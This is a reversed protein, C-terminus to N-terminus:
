GKIGWPPWQLSLNMLHWICTYGATACHYEQSHKNDINLTCLTLTNKATCGISSALLLESRCLCSTVSWTWNPSYWSLTPISPRQHPISNTQLSSCEMVLVYVCLPLSLVNWLKAYHWTLQYLICLCRQWILTLFLWRFLSQFHKTIFYRLPATESISYGHLRVYNM